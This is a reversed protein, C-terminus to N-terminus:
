KLHHLNKKLSDLHEKFLKNYKGRVIDWDFKELCRERGQSALIKRLDPNSLLIDIADALLKPKGPPVLLGTEKHILIDHVAPLDGTVDVQVLGFGEQDGSQAIVFPFVAITACNYLEPLRNQPVMGLFKIQRPGHDLNELRNFFYLFRIVRIGAMM